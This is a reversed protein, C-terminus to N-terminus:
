LFRKSTVTFIGSKTRINAVDTHASRCINRGKRRILLALEKSHSERSAKIFMVVQQHTHESIDRGNILLVQDGELLAPESHAAQLLPSSTFICSYVFELHFRCAPRVPSNPNVHSIALPM